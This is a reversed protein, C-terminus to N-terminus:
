RRGGEGHLMVKASRPHSPSDDIAKFATPLHTTIATFLPSSSSKRKGSVGREAAFAHYPQHPPPYQPCRFRYIVVGGISFEDILTPLSLVATSSLEECTNDITSPAASGYIVVGGRGTKVQLPLVSPASPLLRCSGGAEKVDQELMAAAAAAFGVLFFGHISSLEGTTVKNAADLPLLLCPVVGM